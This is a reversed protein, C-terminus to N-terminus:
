RVAGASRPGPATRTQFMAWRPRGLRALYRYRHVGGVPEVREYEHYCFDGDMLIVTLPSANNGLRDLVRGAHPGDIVIGKVM